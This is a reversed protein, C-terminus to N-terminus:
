FGHENEVEGASSSGLDVRGRDARHQVFEHVPLGDNAGLEQNALTVYNELLM